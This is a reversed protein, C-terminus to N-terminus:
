APVRSDGLMQAVTVARDESAARDVALTAALTLMGDRASVLPKEERRVVAVFHDRQRLYTPQGAIGRYERVLPHQWHDEDRAHRWLYMDSVSLAAKSGAIFLHPGPQPPHYLAQGSSYEWAWPSVAGDSILFTGLAGNVFRVSVSATDEVEFGRRAHSTFARVSDIEGVLHRLIDIDHILNILIVGGGRQKRWEVNFYADPKDFLTMGSAAVVEGLEGAEIISRAARIDPSHRRQHGVLVPVGSREAAEVIRSAAALSDAIPKEVLCAIGREICALAAPAHLHNPLAIIAGDPRLEDLAAVYDARHPVSLREALAAAEPSPDCVAVISVDRRAAMLEAHERGILGAGLLIIATM